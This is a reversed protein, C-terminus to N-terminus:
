RNKRAISLTKWDAKRYMKCLYVIQGVHYSYHALQRNIADIVTHSEKRIYITKQLDDPTVNDIINFCCDWGKEWYEILKERSLKTDVFENDRVRWEKEGDSIYFDTWRSLMNGAMHQMIIAISNSEEDHQIHFADDGIQDIAKEALTKYNHFIKQVSKIFTEEM